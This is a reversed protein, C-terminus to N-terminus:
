RGAILWKLRGFFGRALVGFVSVVMGRTIAHDRGVRIAIKASRREMWNTPRCVLPKYQSKRSM